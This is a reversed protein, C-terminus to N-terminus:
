GWGYPGYLLLLMIGGVLPPLVMPIFILGRVFRRGSFQQRALVHGLPVGLVSMVLISIGSSLLSVKLADLSRRELLASSLQRWPLHFLLLLLPLLLYVLLVGGLLSFLVTVPEPKRMTWPGTM